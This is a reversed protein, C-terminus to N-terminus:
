ATGQQGFHLRMRQNVSRLCSQLGTIPLIAASVSALIPARMTKTAGQVGEAPRQQLRFTGADDQTKPFARPEHERHGVHVRKIGFTPDVGLDLGLQEDAFDWLTSIITIAIDAASTTFADRIENRIVKVHRPQLDKIM